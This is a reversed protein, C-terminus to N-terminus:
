GPFSVPVYLPTDFKNGIFAGESPVEGRKEEGRRSSVVLM